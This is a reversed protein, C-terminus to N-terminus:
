KAEPTGVEYQGDDNRVTIKVNMEEDRIVVTCTFTNGQKVEQEAPCRVDGIDDAPENYNEILIKKVGNDGELAAQDFVKKNLFGPTVFGLVGFAGAALVVVVVVIWIWAGGKKAPPQGYPSQGPFGGPQQQGYGGYPQQQQQQGYGGPYQQTPQQGYGGYPQQQQPQGYPQQQGYGGQGPAPGPGQAPFGGSPTGPTSGGGYPQQGWQQQPDNGGSPGYPSTM